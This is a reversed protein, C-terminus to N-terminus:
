AGARRAAFRDTARDREHAGPHDFETRDDAADPRFASRGRCDAPVRARLDGLPGRGAALSELVGQDNEPLLGLNADGHRLGALSTEFQLAATETKGEYRDPDIGAMVFCANRAIQQTLMRQRGAYNIRNASDMELTIDSAQAPRPLFPAVVLCALSIGAATALGVAGSILQM